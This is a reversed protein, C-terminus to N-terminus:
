NPKVFLEAESRGIYNAELTEPSVTEGSALKRWGLQAVADSRPREVERVNLGQARAAEALVNDATVIVEDRASELWENRTFLRERILRTGASGVEYEGQFVENRGADLAALIKGQSHTASALLELLSVAAIPKALAEALGKIVALGIRLGTFSGPGSVVALADINAKSFGHKEILTAIQPVLEASFTGGLLPSLEIIECVGEPRCRSLAISGHKGSTDVALLLM